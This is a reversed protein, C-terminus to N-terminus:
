QDEDTERRTPAPPTARETNLSDFNLAANFVLFFSGQTQHRWMPNNAFMVVHGRGVPVDIVAPANALESGGALMGSILLNKEDSAFRLVVRPRQDPPVLYPGLARRQEETIEEGGRQRPPAPEALPMGQVIDPDTATGRGSPRQGGGGGGGEGGGGGGGFGAAQTQVQFLPAQSFYIPLTEDYGYAIPSKRDTFRANFISGRAQLQRADQISVGSTIGYTIPISSNSTIAMFLGGDNVFKQLNMVGTLGMGGRMDDTQDPSLGMNPTVPSQKWPIPDGRMPIGSVIAQASGGLPPFIIVDYKDRLNPTNRVVQDSIYDYPIQFRDFEIRYWGDNQTNTWTHLIAIRPVALPHTKVTPLKDIALANLGLETVAAELRSRLDAPNGDTKIIFSGANFQQEGVKFSDEAADMKVDKLRYRLTALTNDANHNIVYATANTASSLKGTVKADATLLTMPSDLLAKDTVRTTKINRLAGLTWGTDDYPRPDNVNYYQTDLLMDAMRSYPQDMRVVYSGAPVKQNKVVIEKEARHVEVGMLRLLNVTDAVEVPRAQDSPLVYAAPGENTAKAVSRKSKIYFNNLFRDKNNAVFNMALLIASQQMNVNNRMSWKVRPQPPNPRFWDRQAQAGVTRDITDAGGNGFTEYFRGIANHGNAVYFMYNPAWGDYFGHTWVGPVGRKTMEEIEHYALLQWEDVTIPDLWANYPGTGTSTYLFPVSEHLDHLIAPHYELFTKMQNRTLALAMGLGDRNNDHAVYKGWFVLGPGNKGPNAQRYNYTDVMMDRGDVELVPTILVIVNKRIAQIFPSEEVALRYALEMLMEPSGTEPSHISGSAWYFVKGEGILSQAEAENLKRPDALKATIEKYRDLKALLAEDGVAVLLQEKGEESREPATFVKVRPSAKALDRYYRYLDKSYTLKNPTGVVYGLVKDPSPIKDSLPLHDVLETMFYPQTTYEKIKKTYDNDAPTAAVPRGLDKKAHDAKTNEQATTLPSAVFFSTILLTAAIVSRLVATSLATSSNVSKM